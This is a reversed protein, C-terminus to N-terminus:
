KREIRCYIIFENRIILSEIKINKGPFEKRGFVIPFRLLHSASKALNERSDKNRCELGGSVWENKRLVL